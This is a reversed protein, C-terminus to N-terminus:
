QPSGIEVRGVKKESTQHFKREGRCEKAGAQMEGSLSNRAREKTIDINDQRVM